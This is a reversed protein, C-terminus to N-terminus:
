GASPELRRRLREAEYGQYVLLLVAGVSVIKQATVQVVLGTPTRASPGFDLILVYAALFVVMAAWAAAARPPLTGNRRAAVALFLPVGPFARFATKTFLVHVDFLRNEPTVAVGAFCACVALGVFGAGLAWPRSAPERGYLRVIAILTAGLGVVVALLSAVFLSASIRNPQGSFTVTAGLDSLFNHFFRYGSTAHDLYTGGPYSLMAVATAVGALAAARRGWSFVSARHGTM